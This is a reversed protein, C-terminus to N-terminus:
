MSADHKRDALMQDPQLLKDISTRLFQSYRKNDKSCLHLGDDTHWDGAPPDLWPIQSNAFIKRLDAHMTSFAWSTEVCRDVPPDFLIVNCGRARLQTALRKTNYAGMCILARQRKKHDNYVTKLATQLFKQRVEPAPEIESHHWPIFAAVVNVPRYEHRFISLHSSLLNSNGDGADVVEEDPPISLGVSTEVLVLRPINKARLLIDMGEAGSSGFFYLKAIRPGLEDQILQGVRSSGIVVADPSTLSFKWKEAM